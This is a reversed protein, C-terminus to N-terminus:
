FLSKMMEIRDHISKQDIEQKHIELAPEYVANFHRVITQQYVPHRNIKAVKILMDMLRIVVSCHEIAYQRIPNLAAAMYGEFSFEHSVILLAGEKSYHRSAPFQKNVLLAITEGIYDICNNAVILDNVGPSLARLVMEVLTDLSCELDNIPVRKEGLIFSSRITAAADEVPENQGEIFALPEGTVVFDGPRTPLHITIKTKEALKKLLEKDIMQLYGANRASVKYELDTREHYSGEEPVSDMDIKEMRDIIQKLDEFVEYVVTGVQIQRVLFHIYLILLVITSVTLLAGVMISLRPVSGVDGNITITYVHYIMYIYVASFWGIVFKSFSRIKFVRLVHAGYQNALVTFILLTISLITTMATIIAACVSSFLTRVGESEVQWGYGYYPDDWQWIRSDIFNMGVGLLLGGIIMLCPIFWLSRKLIDILTKLRNLM